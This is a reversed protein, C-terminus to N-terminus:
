SSVSSSRRLNSTSSRVSWTRSRRRRSGSPALPGVHISFARGARHRLLQIEVKRSVRPSSTRPPGAPATHPRAISRPRTRAPFPAVVMVPMAAMPTSSSRAAPSAPTEGPGRGRIARIPQLHVRPPPRAHGRTDCGGGRRRIGGTADRGPGTGPTTPRSSSRKWRWRRDGEYRVMVQTKGDPRLYELKGTKRVETLREAMRHALQIPLPMLETTEDVAFGFMLGQDGAGLERDVGDPHGPETTTGPGPDRASRCFGPRLRRLRHTSRHRQRHRRRRARSRASRVVWSQSVPRSSSRVHLRAM